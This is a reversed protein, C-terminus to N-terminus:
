FDSVDEKLANCQEKLGYVNARRAATVANGAKRVCSGGVLPCTTTEGTM